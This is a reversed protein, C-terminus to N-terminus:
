QNILDSRDHSEYWEELEEETMQDLEQPALVRKKKHSVRAESIDIYIDNDEIDEYVFFSYTPYLDESSMSYTLGIHKSM